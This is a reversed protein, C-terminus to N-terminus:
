CYVAVFHCCMYMVFSNVTEDAREINIAALVWKDLVCIGHLQWSPLWVLM